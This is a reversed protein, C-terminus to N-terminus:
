CRFADLRVPVLEQRAPASRAFSAPRRLTSPPGGLDRPFSARSECGANGVDSLIFGRPHSFPACWAPRGTCSLASFCAIPPADVGDASRPGRPHSVARASESFIYPVYGCLRSIDLCPHPHVRM